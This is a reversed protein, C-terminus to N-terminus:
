AAGGTTPGTAGERIAKALRDAYTVDGLSEALDRVRGVNHLAAIMRQDAANQALTETDGAKVWHYTAGDAYETRLFAPHNRDLPNRRDMTPNPRIPHVNAIM